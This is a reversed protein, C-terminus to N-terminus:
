TFRHRVQIHGRLRRIIYFRLAESTMERLFSRATAVFRESGSGLLLFAAFTVRVECNGRRGTVLKGADSLAPPGVSLVRARSYGATEPLICSSNNPLIGHCDVYYFKM